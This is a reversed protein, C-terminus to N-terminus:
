HEKKAEKYFKKYWNHLPTACQWPWPTRWRYSKEDTKINSFEGPFFYLTANEV